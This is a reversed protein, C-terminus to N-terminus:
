GSCYKGTNWVVDRLATVSAFVNEKHIIVALRIQGPELRIALFEPNFYEGIAQHSVVNVQNSDGCGVVSQLPHELWQMHSIGLANVTRPTPRPM